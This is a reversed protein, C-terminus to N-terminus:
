PTVIAELREGNIYVISTDVTSFQDATQRIQAEFRPTDCVGAMTVAGSLHITAIGDEVSAYDLTLDSRNLANYLGSQGYYSTNVALLRQFAATLPATTPEIAVSVPVVSDGCGIKRGSQGQDGLAIFYLEVQNVSTQPPLIELPEGLLRSGLHGLLVRSGAPNNPHWEFRAREFWQVQLTEGNIEANHPETIPLGFLAISEQYSSGPQGDFELGHSQWYSLFGIGQNQLQNCVNHSTQGFWLCGAAPGPSTPTTQWAIGRESLVDAGLRGLLVDYPPTYEPAYEFRAREFYQVTRGAEIREDTLPYGFVPLGGHQQWYDLFRGRITHDTAPFYREEQAQVATPSWFPVVFPIILLLFVGTIKSLTPYPIM